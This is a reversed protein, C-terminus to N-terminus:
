LHVVKSDPYTPESINVRGRAQRSTTSFDVFRGRPRPCANERCTKQGHSEGKPWLEVELNPRQGFSRARESSCWWSARSPCGFSDFPFCSLSPFLLYFLSLCLLSFSSGNYSQIVITAVHVNSRILRNSQMTRRFLPPYPHSDRWLALPVRWLRPVFPQSTGPSSQCCGRLSVSLTGRFLFRSLNESPSPLRRSFRTAGPENSDSARYHGRLADFYRPARIYVDPSGPM